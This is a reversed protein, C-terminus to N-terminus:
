DGPSTELQEEQPVEETSIQGSSNLDPRTGPIHSYSIRAGPERNTAPILRIVRSLACSSNYGPLRGMHPIELLAFLRSM